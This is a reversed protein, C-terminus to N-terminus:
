RWRRIDDRWQSEHRHFVSDPLVARSPMNKLPEDAEDLVTVFGELNRVVRYSSGDCKVVMREIATIERDPGYTFRHSTRAALHAATEAQVLDHLIEASTYDELATEAFQIESRTRYGRHVRFLLYADDRIWGQEVKGDPFVDQLWRALGRITADM